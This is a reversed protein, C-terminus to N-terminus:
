NKKRVLFEFMIVVAFCALMADTRFLFAIMQMFSLHFLRVFALEGLSQSIKEMRIVWVLYFVCSQVWFPIGSTQLSSTTSSIIFNYMDVARPSIKMFPAIVYILMLLCPLKATDPIVSMFWNQIMNLSILSATEQIRPMSNMMNYCSYILTSVGVAMLPNAGIQDAVQFALIYQASGGVDRNQFTTSLLFVSFLNLLSLGVEKLQVMSLATDLIMSHFLEEVMHPAHFERSVISCPLLIILLYQSSMQKLQKRLARTLQAVIGRTLASSLQSEIHSM